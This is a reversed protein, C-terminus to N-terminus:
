RKFVKDTIRSFGAGELEKILSSRDYKNCHMGMTNPNTDSETPHMYKFNQAIYDEQYEYFPTDVVILGISSLSQRILKLLEKTESNPIHEITDLMFAVDFKNTFENERMFELADGLFLRYIKPDFGSLTIKALDYAAESFDIGLYSSIAKTKFMYRASEGRGYGIELVRKGALDVLDIAEKIESFIEGRKWEKAGLAGYGADEGDPSRHTFYEMSYKEKLFGM